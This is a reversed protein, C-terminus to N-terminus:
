ELWVKYEDTLMGVTHGLVFIEAVQDDPQLVAADRADVGERGDVVQAVLRPRYAVRVCQHHHHHHSKVKVSAHVKRKQNM